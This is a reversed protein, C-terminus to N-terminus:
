SYLQVANLNFHYHNKPQPAIKQLRVKIINKIPQDLDYIITEKKNKNEIFVTIKENNIKLLEINFNTLRIGYNPRSYIIIKNIVVPCMMYIEWWPLFDDNATHTYEGTGTFGKKSTIYGRKAKNANMIKNYESSQKAIGISTLNLTKDLLNLNTSIKAYIQNNLIKVLNSFSGTLPCTLLNKSYSLYILDVDM